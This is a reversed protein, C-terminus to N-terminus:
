DDRQKGIGILKSGIILYINITIRFKLRDSHSRAQISPIFLSVAALAIIPSALPYTVFSSWRHRLILDLM